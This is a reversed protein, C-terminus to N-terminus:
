SGSADAPLDKEFWDLIEQWLPEMGKRFAGDHGIKARGYDAPSKMVSEQPATSYASMLVPASNATAIPDDTFLWSRIPSKVDDYHHPGLQGSRLESLFYDPKQCWRKWTSFVRGPLDTGTWLRGQKIYGHRRLHMPGFGFWFFLEMPNYSRHHHPWYGSGVSVFAHRRIDAHNPMFGIFSGGVSHGLHYLPLGGSAEALAKVAAPQDLRGWDPYDVDFGKLTEPASKDIGRYDFTLVMAGRAALWRAIRDYFGMPYATGSSVLIAMRAHEPRYVRGALSYGDAADFRIDSVQAASVAANM